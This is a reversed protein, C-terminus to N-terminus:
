EDYDHNKNYNNDHIDFMHYATEGQDLTLERDCKSCRIIQMVMKKKAGCCASLTWDIGSKKPM